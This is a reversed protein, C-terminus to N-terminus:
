LEERQDAPLSFKPNQDMRHFMGRLTSESVNGGEIMTRVSAETNLRALIPFTKQNQTHCQVCSNLSGVPISGHATIPTTPLAARGGVSAVPTQVSGEHGGGMGFLPPPVASGLFPDM